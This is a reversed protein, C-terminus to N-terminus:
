LNRLAGYRAGSRKLIALIVNKRIDKFHSYIEPTDKVTSNRVSWCFMGTLLFFLLLRSFNKISVKFNRHNLTVFVSVDMKRSYWFKDGPRAKWLHYGGEDENNEAWKIFCVPRAFNKRVLISDSPPIHLQDYKRYLAQMLGSFLTLRFMFIILLVLEVFYLM